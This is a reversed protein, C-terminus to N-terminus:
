SHGGAFPVTRPNTALRRTLLAPCSQVHIVTMGAGKQGVRFHLDKQIIRPTIGNQLLTLALALGTPGAGVILVPTTSM